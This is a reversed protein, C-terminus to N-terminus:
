SDDMLQKLNGKTHVVSIGPNEIRLGKSLLITNVLAIAIKVNAGRSYFCQQCLQVFCDERKRM